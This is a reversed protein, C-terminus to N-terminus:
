RNWFKLPGDYGVLHLVNHLFLVIKPTKQNPINNGFSGSIGEVELPFWFNNFMRGNNKWKNIARYLIHEFYIGKSDNILDVDPYFCDEWFDRNFVFLQSNSIQNGLGDKTFTAYVVGDKNCSKIVKNICRCKLRGTVKVISTNRKLFVSHSMGYQILLAEGYGKGKSKDYNNGDFFIMELRGSQIESQFDASLDKNTNEIFLIPANTETLYYQLAEKYQRERITSDQLATYAMGKPNICATLLIVPQTRNNKM